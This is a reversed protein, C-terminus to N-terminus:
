FNIIYIVNLFFDLMIEQTLEKELVQINIISQELVYRVYKIAIGIGCISPTYDISILFKEAEEAKVFFIKINEINDCESLLLKKHTENSVFDALILESNYELYDKSIYQKIENEYQPEFKLRILMSMLKIQRRLLFGYIHFSIFNLNYKKFEKIINNPNSSVLQTFVSHYYDIIDIASKIDDFMIDYTIDTKLQDDFANDEFTPYKTDTLQIGKNEKLWRKDFTSAHDDDIIADNKVISKEEEFKDM